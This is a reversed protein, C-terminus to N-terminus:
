SKSKETLFIKYIVNPFVPEIYSGCILVHTIGIEKLKEKNSANALNGIFMKETVQDPVSNDNDGLISMAM